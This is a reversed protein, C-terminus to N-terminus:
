RGIVLAVAHRHPTNTHTHTYVVRKHLKSFKLFILNFSNVIYLDIQFRHLACVFYTFTHMHIKYFLFNFITWYNIIIHM